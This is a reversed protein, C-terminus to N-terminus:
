KRVYAIILEITEKPHHRAQWVLDADSNLLVVIQDGIYSIDELTYQEPLNMGVILGTVKKDVNDKLLKKLGAKDKAIIKKLYVTKNLLLSNIDEYDLGVMNPSFIIDVWEDFEPKKSIEDYNEILRNLELLKM